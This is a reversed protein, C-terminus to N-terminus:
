MNLNVKTEQEQVRNDSYTKYQDPFNRNLDKNHSNPRGYVGNIQQSTYGVKYASLSWNAFIFSQM